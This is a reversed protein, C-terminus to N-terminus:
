FAIFPLVPHTQSKLLKHIYNKGTFDFNVYVAEDKTYETSTWFAWTSQDMAGRWRGLISTMNDSTITVIYDSNTKYTIPINWPSTTLCKLVQGVSPLFWDSMDYIDPDFGNVKYNRALRAAPYSDSQILRNTHSIGDLQAPWTSQEKGKTEGFLLTNEADSCWKVHNGDDAYELAVALGHYEKDTSTDADKGVYVVLAVAETGATRAADKSNYLKGDMGIFQNVQAKDYGRDGTVEPEKLLDEEPEVDAYYRYVKKSNRIPSRVEYGGTGYMKALEEGTAHRIVWRYNNDTFYDNYSSRYAGSGGYRFDINKTATSMDKKVTLYEVHHLNQEATSTGNTYVAEYLKCTKGWPWSYGDYMLHVGNEKIEQLEALGSLHLVDKIIDNKVWAKQVNQWFYKNHYQINAVKFDYFMEPVTIGPTILNEWWSEPFCIAYLMEAFSQMHKKNVGLKTPLFFDYKSGNWDTVPYINNNQLVGVNVWHSDEKKEPGFAPRVCIWYDDENAIGNVFRIVDGFRYYARGEFYSNNNGQDFSQYVIKTLTPLQKINVDVTAWSSGDTTKNWTLTGVNPDSYTHTATSATINAGTLDNYSHVAAEMTNTVVIRTLPDNDAPRGVNTEFTKDEYDDVIDTYSILQGVVGWFKESAAAKAEAEKQEQEESQSGEHDDKCSAVSLGLGCVLAAMLWLNFFKKM